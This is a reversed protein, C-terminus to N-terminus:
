RTSSRNDGSAKCFFGATKDKTQRLMASPKKILGIDAESPGRVPASSLADATIQQKGPAHIVEPQFPMLRLRFRKISTPLKHLEKSSLLPVFPNTTQRFRINSVLFTTALGRTLGRQLLPRRSYLM